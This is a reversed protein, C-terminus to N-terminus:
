GTHKWRRHSFIEINIVATQRLKLLKTRLRDIKWVLFALKRDTTQESDIPGTDEPVEDIDFKCEFKFERTQELKDEYVSFVIVKWAWWDTYWCFSTTYVTQGNDESSTALCTSNFLVEIETQDESLDVRGQDSCVEQKEQKKFLTQGDLFKDYCKDDGDLAINLAVVFKETDCSSKM